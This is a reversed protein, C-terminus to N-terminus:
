PRVGINTKGKIRETPSLAARLWDEGFFFCLGAWLRRRLTGDPNSKIEQWFPGSLSRYREVQSM